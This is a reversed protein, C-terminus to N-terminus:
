GHAHHAHLGRRRQKEIPYIGDAPATLRAVQATEKEEQALLFLENQIDRRMLLFDVKGGTSFSEFPLADLKKLQSEYFETLRKRREPSGPVIYFRELSGEDAEHQVIFSYMETVAAATQGFVTTAAGLSAILILILIRM